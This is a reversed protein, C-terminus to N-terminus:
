RSIFISLHGISYPNSLTHPYTCLFVLDFFFVTVKFYKSNGIGIGVGSPISLWLLMLTPNDITPCTPAQFIFM